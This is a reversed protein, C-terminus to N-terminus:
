RKIGLKLFILPRLIKWWDRVPMMKTYGVIKKHYKKTVPAECVKYGKKVVNYFLYPELEYTDLWDQWINIKKEKIVNVGFARFGNTGDTCPFGTLFGFIISYVKTTVRRFLPMNVTRRGYIRRSGQVFDYGNELIPKLVIPIEAPVDQDDGAMILIIDYLNTVAYDIGTRLGAGVGHNREKKIVTAGEREAVESTKDASGDDVVLICDVFSPDVGKIGKVVSGIKGEENYAPLVVIIKKGNKM